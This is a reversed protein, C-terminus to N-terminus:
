DKITEYIESAVLNNGTKTMHTGLVSKYKEIDNEKIDELTSHLDILTLIDTDICQTVKDIANLVRKNGVENKSYQVLIYIKLQKEESFKKLENFINCVVEVGNKHVNTSSWSSNYWRTAKMRQMIKNVMFSYGFVSKLIGFSDELLEYSKLHEDVLIIEGKESLIFYPKPASSRESLQCNFIGMSIFSFIIIDPNYEDSLQKMRIYSQDIGYGFVGGNIVNLGSIEQLQAPWTEDDAVGEGYTFSDGVVLITKGKKNSPEKGNSRIGEKLITIKGNNFKGEKLNWGLNKDFVAPYKSDLLTRKEGPYFQLKFNDKYIARTVVEYFPLSLIIVAIIKIIKM